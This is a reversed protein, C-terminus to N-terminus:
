PAPPTPRAVTRVARSPAPALAPAPASGPRNSPPRSTSPAAAPPSALPGVAPRGQRPRRPPRTAAATVSLRAWCCRGRGVGWLVPQGGPRGVNLSCRLPGSGGVVIAVAHRSRRALSPARRPGQGPLARALGGSGCHKWTSAQLAELDRRRRCGRRSDDAPGPATGSSASWGSRTIPNWRSRQSRPIKTDLRGLNRPDAAPAQGTVQRHRSDIATDRGRM